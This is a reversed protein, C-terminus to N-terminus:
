QELQVWSFKNKEEAMIHWGKNLPKIEISKKLLRLRFVFNKFSFIQNSSRTYGILKYKRGTKLKSIKITPIDDDSVLTGASQHSMEKPKVLQHFPKHRCCVTEDIPCPKNCVIGKLEGRKYAYSCFGKLRKSPRGPDQSINAVTDDDDDMPSLLNPLIFERVIKSPSQESKNNITASNSFQEPVNKLKLSKKGVPIPRGVNTPVKASFRNDLRKFNVDNPNPKVFSVEASTAAAVLEALSSM